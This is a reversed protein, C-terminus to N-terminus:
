LLCSNNGIQQALVATHMATTNKPGEDSSEPITLLEEVVNPYGRRCAIDMPSEGYNSVQSSLHASTGPHDRVNDLIHLALNQDPMGRLAHHLANQGCLDVMELMEYLYNQPARELDYDPPERSGAAAILAKAMSSNGAMLAAILPTEGDNNQSTLLLPERTWLRRAFTDHGLMVALHLATNGYPTKDKLIDPGDLQEYLFDFLGRNGARCAKLLRPHMGSGSQNNANDIDTGSSSSPHDTTLVIGAM